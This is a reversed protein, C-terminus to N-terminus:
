SFVSLDTKSDNNNLLERHAITAKIYGDRREEGYVSVSARTVAQVCREINQGHLPFNPVSM